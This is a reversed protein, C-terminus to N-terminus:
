DHIHGTTGPSCWRNVVPHSGHFEGIIKGDSSVYRDITEHIVANEPPGILSGPGVFVRAVNDSNFSDSGDDWQWSSLKDNEVYAYQSLGYVWQKPSAGKEPDGCLQKVMEGSIGLPLQRLDCSSQPINVPKVPVIYAPAFRSYRPLNLGVGLGISVGLTMTVSIALGFVIKNNIKNIPRHNLRDNYEKVTGDFPM